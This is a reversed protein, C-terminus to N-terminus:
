PSIVFCNPVPWLPHWHDTNRAGELIWVPLITEGMWQSLELGYGGVPYHDSLIQPILIGGTPDGEVILPGNDNGGTMIAEYSDLRIGAEAREAGHCSECYTLTFNLIDDTFSADRFEVGVITTSVSDRAGDSDTVTLTLVHSGLEISDLWGGHANPAPKPWPQGDFSWAFSEPPLEGDEVDWGGGYFPLGRGEYQMFPECPPAGLGASPATNATPPQPPLEPERPLVDVVVSDSDSGSVNVVKLVIDHRGVDLRVLKQWPKGGYLEGWGTLEVGDEMWRYGEHLDPASVWASLVVPEWGNGDRDVVSQDLGANATPPEVEPGSVPESACATVLLLAAGVALNMSMANM